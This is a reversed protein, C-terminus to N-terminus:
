QPKIHISKKYVMNFRIIIAERQCTNTGPWLLFNLMPKKETFGKILAMLEKFVLTHKGTMWITLTIMCSDILRSNEILVSCFPLTKRINEIKIQKQMAFLYSLTPMLLYISITMLQQLQFLLELSLLCEMCTSGLPYHFISLDRM